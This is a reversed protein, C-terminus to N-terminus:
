RWGHLETYYINYLAGHEVGGPMLRGVTQGDVSSSIVRAELFWGGSERGYACTNLCADTNISCRCINTVLSLVLLSPSVVRRPWEPPMLHFDKLCNDDNQM